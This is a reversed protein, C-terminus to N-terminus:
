WNLSSLDKLHLFTVEIGAYQKKHVISIDNSVVFFKFDPYRRAFIKFNDASFESSKWKCEIAFKRGGSALYIFDVEHGQKDRWYNIKRTQTLSFIENLVVHEWLFGKDQQRLSNIQSFACVFGTDMAYVKPASIIESASRSSFPRIIYAIFTAELINLYNHIANRNVECPGAYATAEFISGSRNFVLETFKLFSYRKGVNFLEQIDRVWYNELWEQFDKEPFNDALFYPPLGGNLLRHEINNNGFDQMDTFNMPTLWIDKKRDTLTDKFKKSASLTSSGTAIIKTDPYYDAAIKLLQSPDKLKHIEDIVLKKNKVNKLFNESDELVNKISPLECDFYETGELTKCLFTKGVRRVGSLWIINKKKWTKEIIDLWFRRKVMHM